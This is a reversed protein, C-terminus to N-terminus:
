GENMPVKCDAIQCIAGNRPDVTATLGVLEGNEVMFAEELVEM